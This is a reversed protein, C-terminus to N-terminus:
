ILERWKRIADILRFQIESKMDLDVKRRIIGGEDRFEYTSLANLYDDYYLLIDKLAASDGQVAKSILDHNM